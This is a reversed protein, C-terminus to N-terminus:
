TQKPRRKRPHIPVQRNRLYLAAAAAIAVVLMVAQNFNIGFAPVYDLRLYELLFRGLPYSVLYALFIDGSTLRDRYNRWL